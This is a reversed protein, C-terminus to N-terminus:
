FSTASNPTTTACGFPSPKLLSKAAFPMCPKPRHSWTQVNKVAAGGPCRVPHTKIPYGKPSYQPIGPPSGAPGGHTTHLGPRSFGGCDPRSREGNPPIEGPQFQCLQPIYNSFGGCAVQRPGKRIDKRETNPHLKLGRYGPAQLLPLVIELDAM